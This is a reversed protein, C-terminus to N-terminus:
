VKKEIESVKDELSKLKKEASGLRKLIGGLTSEGAPSHLAIDGGSYQIFAEGFSTGLEKRFVGKGSVPPQNGKNWYRGMVVGASQGNSLHLVLVEQGIGPMKYEDTMSFVPFSDTASDDLDPYTVSIMGNEYDVTSVKGLRILREAM